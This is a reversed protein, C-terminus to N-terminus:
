SEYVKPELVDFYDKDYHGEVVFYKRGKHYIRIDCPADIKGDCYDQMDNENPYTKLCKALVKKRNIVCGSLLGYQVAKDTTSTDNKKTM